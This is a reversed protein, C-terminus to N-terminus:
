AVKHTVAGADDGPGLVAKIMDSRHRFVAEDYLDKGDERAKGMLDAWRGRDLDLSHIAEALAATDDRPTLLGGGADAILGAPFPSRYGVIPTGARLAEILIRPSEKTKHCFVLVHAGELSRRVDDRNEVNGPASVVDSLGLAEIESVFRARDSGDGLWTARFAMGKQRLRALVVLWDRWGKMPVIRGAYIIHPEATAIGAQKASLDEPAIEDTKSVHVDHALVPHPSYPAYSEFTDAGHFLGLAARRVLYRELAAMPRHTLRARLRSKLSGTAASLRVVQSEVRDTWIAFPRDMRIAERSAVSGWDGFLGGIAFCLYENRAIRERIARQAAPLQKLFQDPRFAEPLLCFEMRQAWASAEDWPVWGVPPNGRGERAIVEIRDFNEAWLRLGNNAQREVYLRGDKRYFPVTIALLLSTVPM